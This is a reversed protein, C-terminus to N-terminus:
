QDKQPYRVPRRAGEWKEKQEEAEVTDVSWNVLMSIREKAYSHRSNFGCLQDKLETTGHRLAFTESAITIEKKKEVYECLRSLGELYM